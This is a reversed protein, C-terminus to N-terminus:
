GPGLIRKWGANRLKERNPPTNDRRWSVLSIFVREFEVATLRVPVYDRRPLANAGTFLREFDIITLFSPVYERRQLAALSAFAHDFDATALDAKAPDDKASDDKASDDEAFEDGVTFAQGGTSSAMNPWVLTSGVALSSVVVIAALVRIVNLPM